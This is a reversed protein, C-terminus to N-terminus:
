FPDRNKKKIHVNEDIAQNRQGITERVDLEDIQYNKKFTISPNNDNFINDFGRQIYDHYSIIAWKADVARIMIINLLGVVTTRDGTYDEGKYDTVNDIAKRLSTIETWPSGISNNFNKTDTYLGEELSDLKSLYDSLGEIVSTVKSLPGSMSTKREKEIFQTKSCEGKGEDAHTHDAKVLIPPCNLKSIDEIAEAAANVIANISSIIKECDKGMM